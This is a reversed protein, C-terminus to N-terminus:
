PTDAATSPPTTLLGHVAAILESATFPKPLFATRGGESGTGPMADSYGSVFLVPLAPRETMLREALMPGHMEPMVIDTLLLSIRAQENAFIACAESPTSAVLVTYGARELMRAAMRRVGPEDEVLLITGSVPAAVLEARVVPATAAVSGGAPRSAPADGNVGRV